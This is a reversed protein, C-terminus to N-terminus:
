HPIGRNGIITLLSLDGLGHVGDLEGLWKSVGLAAEGGLGWPLGEGGRIIIEGGLEEVGKSCGAGGENEERYGSRLLIVGPILKDPFM